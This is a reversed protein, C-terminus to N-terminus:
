RISNYDITRGETGPAPQASTKTSRAQAIYNDVQQQIWAEKVQDPTIEVGKRKSQEKASNIFLKRLSPDNELRDMVHKNAKEYLGLELKDQNIQGGYQKILNAARQGAEANITAVDAATPQKGPNKAQWDSM